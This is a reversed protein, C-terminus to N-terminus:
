SEDDKIKEGTCKRLGGRERITNLRRGKGVLSSGENKDFLPEQSGRKRKTIWLVFVGVHSAGGVIKIVVTGGGGEKQEGRQKCQKRRKWGYSKPRILGGRGWETRQNRYPGFIRESLSKKGEKAL